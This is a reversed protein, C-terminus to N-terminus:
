LKRNSYSILHEIVKQPCASNKWYSLANQQLENQFSIDNTITNIIEEINKPDVFLINKRDQIGNPINNQFNTSLIIKGLCFYEGLKWGHCFHVAPTNFVIKSKKIKDLYEHINYRKSIAYKLYKEKLPHNPPIIFGGEFDIKKNKTCAIIFRERILNTTDNCNEINWLNSAFFVYNNGNNKLSPTEYYSLRSRHVYQLLYDKIHVHIGVSRNSLSKIYNTICYFITQYSNWIKIGFYPPLQIIRNYDVIKNYAYFLTFSKNINVKAYIDAWKYASRNIDSADDAFDIVHNLISKPPNSWVLVLKHERKKSNFQIFAKILTEINKRPHSCSVSLFYRSPLNLRTKCESLIAPSVKNFDSSIGWPISVVKSCPLNFTEEIMSKSYQSCTVICSANYVAREWKKKEKKNTINKYGWVDHITLLLNEEKYSDDYNHPIHVLNPRLIYKRYLVDLETIHIIKDPFPIKFYQFDIDTRDMNNARLGTTYYYLKFPLNNIKSLAKMLELTSRGVGTIYQGKRYTVGCAKILIEDM